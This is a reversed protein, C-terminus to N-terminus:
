SSSRCLTSENHDLTAGILKFHGWHETKTWNLPLVVLYYNKGYSVFVMKLPCRLATRSGRVHLCPTKWPICQDVISRNHGPESSWDCDFQVLPHPLTTKAWHCWTLNKLWALDGFKPSIVKLMRLRLNLKEQDHSVLWGQSGISKLQCQGPQDGQITLCHCVWCSWQQFHKRDHVGFLSLPDSDNKEWKQSQDTRGNMVLKNCIFRHGPDCDWSWGWCGLTVVQQWRGFRHAATDKAARCVACKKPLVPSSNVRGKHGNPLLDLM